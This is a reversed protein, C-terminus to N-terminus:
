ALACTNCPYLTERAAAAERYSRFRPSNYIELISQEGANGFPFEGKADMCCHPVVGNCLVSINLWQTCPMLYPIRTQNGSHQGLWNARGKAVAMYDKGYEFEAFLQKCEVIFRNDGEDATSIRSLVIPAGFFPQKRNETLLRRINAVTRNFDIGMLARYEAENAANFSINFYGLRRIRRIKEFFGPPAVNMNTYLGITAHPLSDNLLAIREFIKKDMFPENVVNMYFNVPSDPPIASADRIIKEYLADRMQESKRALEEHPCFGCKANCRGTTELQIHMPYEMHRARLVLYSNLYNDGSLQTDIQAFLNLLSRASGTDPALALGRVALTRAMSFRGEAAEVDALALLAEADAPAACILKNLLNRADVLNGAQLMTRALQKAEAFTLTRMGGQEQVPSM